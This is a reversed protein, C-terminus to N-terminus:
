FQNVASSIITFLEVDCKKQSVTYLSQRTRKHSQSQSINYAHVVKLLQQRTCVEHVLM